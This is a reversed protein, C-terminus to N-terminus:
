SDPEKMRDPNKNRFETFDSISKVVGAKHELDLCIMNYALLVPLANRDQSRLIFLPEDDPVPVGDSRRVLRNNEIKYKREIM